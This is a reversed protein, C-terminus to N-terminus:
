LHGDPADFSARPHGFFIIALVILGVVAARNRVFRDFIIRLQSRRKRVLAPTLELTSLQAYQPANPSQQIDM